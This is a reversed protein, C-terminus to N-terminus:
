MIQLSRHTNLNEVGVADEPKPWDDLNQSHHQGQPWFVPKVWGGFTEEHRHAAKAM